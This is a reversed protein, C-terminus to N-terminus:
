SWGLPSGHALHQPRCLVFICLVGQGGGRSPAAAGPGNDSPSPHGLGTVQSWCRATQWGSFSPAAFPAWFARPVEGLEGCAWAPKQSAKAREPMGGARPLLATWACPLPHQEPGSGAPPTAQLRHLFSGLSAGFASRVKPVDPFWLSEAGSVAQFDGRRQDVKVWCWGRAGSRKPNGRYRKVEKLFSFDTRPDGSAKACLCERPLLEALISQPYLSAAQLSFLSGPPDGTHRSPPLQQLAVTPNCALRLKSNSFRKWSLCLFVFAM